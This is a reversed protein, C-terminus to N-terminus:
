SGCKKECYYTIEDDFHCNPCKDWQNNGTSRNKYHNCACQTGATDIEYETWSGYTIGYPTGNGTSGRQRNKVCVAANHMYVTAFVAFTAFTSIQM